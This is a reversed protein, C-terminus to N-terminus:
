FSILNEFIILIHGYEHFFVRGFDLVFLRSKLVIEHKGNLFTQASFSGVNLV